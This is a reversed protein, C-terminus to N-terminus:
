YQPTFILLVLLFSLIYDFPLFFISSIRRVRAFVLLNQLCHDPQGPSHWKALTFFTLIVSYKNYYSQPMLQESAHFPIFIVPKGPFFIVLMSYKRYCILFCNLIYVSWTSVDPAFHLGILRVLVMDNWILTQSVRWPINVSGMTWDVNILYVRLGRMPKKTYCTYDPTNHGTWHRGFICCECFPPGM